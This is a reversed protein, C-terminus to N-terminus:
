DGVWFQLIEDAVTVAAQARTVVGIRQAVQRMDVTLVHTAQEAVVRGDRTSFSANADELGLNPQGVDAHQLLGAYYRDTSPRDPLEKVSLVLTGYGVSLACSYLSDAASWHPVVPQQVTLGAEQLEDTGRRNCTGIAQKSPERVPALSARRTTTPTSSHAAGGCGAAAAILLGALALAACRPGRM